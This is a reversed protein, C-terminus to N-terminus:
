NIVVPAPETGCAAVTQRFLKANSANGFYGANATFFQNADSFAFVPGSHNFPGLGGPIAVMAAGGPNTALVEGDGFATFYGPYNQTWSGVGATAPHTAGATNVTATQAGSLSGTIDLYFADILSENAVDSNAGGFSSNDAMLIACGGHSVYEGLADQEAQSLATIAATNNLVTGLIAVDVDGALVSSSLVSATDRWVFGYEAVLADIAPQLSADRISVFGGRTQSFGAVRLGPDVWKVISKDRATGGLGLHGAYANDGFVLSALNRKASEFAAALGTPNPGPVYDDCSLAQPLSVNPMLEYEPTGPTLYQPDGNHWAGLQLEDIHGAPVADEDICQGITILGNLIPDPDILYEYCANYEPLYSGTPLDAPFNLTCETLERITVQYPGGEPLVGAPIYLLADGDRTVFLNDEDWIATGMRCDNGDGCAFDELADGIFFKVPVTRGDKLGVIEETTLNKATGGSVGFQLDVFGLEFAGILVRVRYTTTDGETTPSVAPVQTDWDVQYQTGDFTIDAAGFAVHIPAASCEWTVMDVVCVEVTPSLMPLPSQGTLDPSGVLPPLFYFGETGGNHAADSILSNPQGPVVPGSMGGEDCAALLLPATALFLALLPRPLHRRRRRPAHPHHPRAIM